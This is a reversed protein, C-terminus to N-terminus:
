GFRVLRDKFPCHVTKKRSLHTHTVKNVSPSAIFWFTRNTTSGQQNSTGNKYRKILSHTYIRTWPAALASIFQDHKTDVFKQIRGLQSELPDRGPRNGYFRATVPQRVRAARFTAIDKEARNLLLYLWNITESVSWLNSRCINILFFPNETRGVFDLHAALVACGLWYCAHEPPLSHGGSTTQQCGQFWYISATFDKSVQYEGSANWSECPTYMVHKSVLWHPVFQASECWELVSLLFWISM